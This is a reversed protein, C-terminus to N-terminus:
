CQIRMCEEEYMQQVLRTCKENLLVTGRKTGKSVVLHLENMERTEHTQAPLRPPVGQNQGHTHM